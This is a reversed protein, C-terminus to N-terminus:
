PNSLTPNSSLPESPYDLRLNHNFHREVVDHAGLAVVTAISQAEWPYHSQPRILQRLRCIRHFAHLLNVFPLLMSSRRLARTASIKVVSTTWGATEEGRGM